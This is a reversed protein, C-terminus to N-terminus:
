AGADLRCYPAPIGLLFDIHARFDCAVLACDDIANRASDAEIYETSVACLRQPAARTQNDRIAANNRRELKGTLVHRALNRAEAERGQLFDIVLGLPEGGDGSLFDAGAM